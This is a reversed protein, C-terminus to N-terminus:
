STTQAKKEQITSQAIRDCNQIYRLSVRSSVSLCLDLMASLSDMPIAVVTHESVRLVSHRDDTAPIFPISNESLRRLSEFMDGRKILDPEPASDEGYSLTAVVPAAAIGTLPATLGTRSQEFLDGTPSADGNLADLAM